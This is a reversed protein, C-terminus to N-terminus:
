TDTSNLVVLSTSDLLFHTALALLFSNDWQLATPATCSCSVLSVSLLQSLLLILLPHGSALHLFHKSSAATALSAWHQWYHLPFLVAEGAGWYCVLWSQTPVYFVGWQGYGNAGSLLTNSVLLESVPICCQTFSRKQWGLIVTVQQIWLNQRHPLSESSVGVWYTFSAVNEKCTQIHALYNLSRVENIFLWM